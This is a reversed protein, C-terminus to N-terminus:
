PNPIPSIIKKEDIHFFRKYGPGNISYIHYPSGDLSSYNTQVHMIEGHDLTDSTHLEFTVEQGVQYKPWIWGEGKQNLSQLWYIHFWDLMSAHSVRIGRWRKWFDREVADWKEGESVAAPQLSESPNQEGKEKPYQRKDYDSEPYIPNSSKSDLADSMIKRQAETLGREGDGHNEMQTAYERAKSNIEDEGVQAIDVISLKCIENLFDNAEPHNMDWYNSMVEMVKSESLTSYQIKVDCNPCYDKKEDRWQHACCPCEYVIRATYNFKKEKM